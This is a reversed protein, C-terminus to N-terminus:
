LIFSAGCIMKSLVALIYSWDVRDYAKEFDLFTAYAEEGRHTILDQLDSIYRTHHHISRGRLFAKQDEHILKPPMRQIRYALVKSLAKVDVCILAIPRYNGPDVLFGKEYLLM